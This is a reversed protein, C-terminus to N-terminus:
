DLGVGLTISQKELFLTEEWTHTRLLVGPGLAVRLPASCGALAKM